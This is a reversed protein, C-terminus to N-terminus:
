IKFPFFANSTKGDGVMLELSEGEVAVRWITEDRRWELIVSGDPEPYVDNPPPLKMVSLKALLGIACEVTKRSVRKYDGFPDEEMSGIVRLNAYANAWSFM